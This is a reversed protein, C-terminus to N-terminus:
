FVAWIKLMVQVETGGRGGQVPHLSVRTATQVLTLSIEACRMRPCLDNDRWVHEDDIM